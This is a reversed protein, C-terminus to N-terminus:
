ETCEELNNYLAEVLRDYVAEQRQIDELRSQKISCECVGIFAGNAPLGKKQLSARWLASAWGILNGYGIRDGLQKISDTDARFVNVDM